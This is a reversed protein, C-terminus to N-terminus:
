AITVIAGIIAALAALAVLTAAFMKAVLVRVGDATLQSERLQEIESRLQTVEASAPEHQTAVAGLLIRLESSTFAVRDGVDENSNRATASGLIALARAALLEDNSAKGTDVEPPAPTSRLLAMLSPHQAELRQLEAKADSENM